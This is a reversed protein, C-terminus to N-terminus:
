KEEYELDDDFSFQTDRFVNETVRELLLPTGSRLKLTREHSNVEISYKSEKTKIILNSSSM